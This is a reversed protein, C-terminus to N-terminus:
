AGVRWRQAGDADDKAMIHIPSLILALLSGSLSVLQATSLERSELSYSFAIIYQPFSGCVLAWLATTPAYIPVALSALVPVCLAARSM